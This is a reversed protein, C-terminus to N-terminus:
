ARAPRRLMEQVQRALSDPTFPKPLLVTDADLAGHRVIADDTYGSMY